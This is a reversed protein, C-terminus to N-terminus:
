FCLCYRNRRKFETREAQQGEAGKRRRRQSPRRRVHCILWTLKLSKGL